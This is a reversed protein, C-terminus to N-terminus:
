FSRAINDVYKLNSLNLGNGALCLQGGVGLVPSSEHRLMKAHAATIEQANQMMCQM